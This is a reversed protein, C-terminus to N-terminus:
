KAPPAEGAPKPAERKPRLLGKLREQLQQEVSPKRTSDPAAEPKPPTEAAKGDAPPAAAGTKGAEPPQAARGRGTVAGLIDGLRQSGTRPEGTQGQQGGAIAGLIGTTLQQPNRLNPVLNKLKMDAIRAADPAFRPQSMTGTMTLPVVLQGEANALATTMFGGVRTGGAQDSFAKSLVATLRLNVAQDALNITGAAGLSGGELTAKLDETRALGNVVTFTGTLAAVMTSRDAAAKGSLFRGVNSIEQMLDMNALRGDPVNLSLTGNMSRAIEQAGDMSASVRVDSTLAGFIVDHLSTAASALKNADGRELRSAYTFTAPRRRADVTIAGVHRGGYVAATLPDLRILGRDITATAQVNELLLQNSVVSGIRVRGSGRTSLLLSPPASAGKAGPAPAAAPAATAPALLTQMEAVDLRDAALEFQVQPATFNRVTVTGTATTKGLSATLEDLSATNTGFSMVAGRVTLPKAISPTQLTADSLRGSGSLRPESVPGTARVDVTLRGSGTVGEVASVGWARAISLVDGVDANAARISADVTPADSTYAGITARAGVSTGNTSATFDNTRIESPTLTLDVAQTTVPRPLDKGSIRVDRLRVQGSLAPADSPGKARVDANLTGGVQVGSGFAVGFASALRAAEVLSANGATVHLDLAPTEPALNVTGAISLPTQGLTVAASTITLVETKADHAADMTLAVPYGLEVGRVRAGNLTMTGKASARGAANKAQVDGTIIADTGELAEAALFSGLASVTANEFTVRGDFPTQAADAQNVPGATGRLSVKGASAGPLTAALALDFAKRPGYGDVDVDINRYESREARRARAARDGPGPRLDTIGVVGGTIGLHDLVLTSESSEAQAGGLTSVNWVGRADRVLEIAPRRLELSTLEFAGTLLPLLRPRVILEDARAFPRASQFAPDDGISAQEVRLGLPWLSVEMRGLAVTRKLREALLAQVRPRYQNVDVSLLGVVLLVLLVLVGAGVALLKRSM